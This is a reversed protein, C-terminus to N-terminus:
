NPKCGIGINWVKPWNWKVQGSFSYGKSTCYYAYGIGGIVAILIIVWIIWKNEIVDQYKVELHNKLSYLWNLLVLQFDHLATM